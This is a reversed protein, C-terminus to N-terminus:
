FIRWPSREIIIPTDGKPEILSTCSGDLIRNIIRHQYPYPEVPKEIYRVEAYITKRMTRDMVRFLLTRVKRSKHIMQVAKIINRRRIM